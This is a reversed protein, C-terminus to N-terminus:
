ETTSRRFSKFSFLMIVGLGALLLSGPEPVVSAIQSIRLTDLSTSDLASTYIGLNDMSGDFPRTNGSGLANGGVILSSLNTLPSSASSYTTSYSLLSSAEDTDGYNFTVTTTGALSNYSYTVAFFVSAGVTNYNTISTGSVATVTGGGGVSSGLASNSKVTQTGYQLSLFNAGSIIINGVQIIRASDGLPSQATYWGTITFASVSNLLAGANSSYAVPGSGPSTSTGGMQTASTLDLSHSSASHLDAQVGSADYMTLKYASGASGSNLATTGGTEDFNYFLVQAHMTSILAIGSLLVSMLFKPAILCDAHTKM